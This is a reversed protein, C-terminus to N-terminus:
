CRPHQAGYAEQHRRDAWFELFPGRVRAGGWYREGPGLGPRAADGAERVAGAHWAPAREALAPVAGGLGGDQASAMRGRGSAGEKGSGPRPQPWHRRLPAAPPRCGLFVFPQPRLAALASAQTQAGAAWSAGAVASSAPM